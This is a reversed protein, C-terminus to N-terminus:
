LGHSDPLSLDLLVVDYTTRALAGLAESFREVADTEFSAWSVEALAARVLEADGPNDEVLLVKLRPRPGRDDETRVAAGNVSQKMGDERETVRATSRSPAGSSM